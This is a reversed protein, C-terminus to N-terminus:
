PRRWRFAALADTTDIDLLPGDNGAEVELVHEANAAIINRAGTDGELRLLEPFYCRGFLVPNGRKGGHAAICITKPVNADFATIMRDLIDSSISPMDGLVILVGTCDDPLANIGVRISASMGDGFSAHRVTGHRVHPLAHDVEMAQHGLIVLIPEARSAEVNRVVRCILTEGDILQLLKNTGMRTSMGAALVIAAVGM